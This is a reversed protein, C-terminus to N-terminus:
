HMMSHVVSYVVSLVLSHMCGPTSSPACSFCRCDYCRDLNCAGHAVDLASYAHWFLWSVGEGKGWGVGRRTHPEGRQGNREERPLLGDVSRRTCSDLARRATVDVVYYATASM